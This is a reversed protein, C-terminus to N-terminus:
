IGMYFFWVVSFIISMYYCCGGCSIYPCICKNNVPELLNWKTDQQLIQLTTRMNYFKYPTLTTKELITFINLSKSFYFSTSLAQIMFNLATKEYKAM